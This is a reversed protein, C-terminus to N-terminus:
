RAQDLETWWACTWTRPDSARPARRIWRGHACWRARYPFGHARPTSGNWIVNTDCRARDSELIVAFQGLITRAWIKASERASFLIWIVTAFYQLYNVGSIMALSLIKNPSATSASISNWLIVLPSVAHPICKLKPGLSPPGRPNWVINM